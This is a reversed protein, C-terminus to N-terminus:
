GATGSTINTKKHTITSVWTNLFQLSAIILSFEGEGIEMDVLCICKAVDPTVRGNWKSGSAEVRKWESGSTLNTKKHTITNVWTNLFRLSAIILSFEGEGIEMAVLCTCKAVDPTVRGNWESGNAEV